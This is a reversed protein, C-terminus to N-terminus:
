PFAAYEFPCDDVQEGLQEFQELFDNVDEASILGYVTELIGDQHIIGFSDPLTKFADAEDDFEFGRDFMVVDMGRELQLGCSVSSGTNTVEDYGGNFVVWTSEEDAHFEAWSVIRGSDGVRGSYLQDIRGSVPVGGLHVAAECPTYAPWQAASSPSLQEQASAQGAAIPAPTNASSGVDPGLAEDESSCATFVGFALLAAALLYVGRKPQRLPILNYQFHSM